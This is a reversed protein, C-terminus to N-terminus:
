SSKESLSQLFVRLLQARLNMFVHFWTTELIVLFIGRIFLLVLLGLVFGILSISLLVGNGFLVFLSYTVPVLLLLVFLVGLIMVGVGILRFWFLLLGMLLSARLSSSTFLYGLRLSQYFSHRDTVYLFYGYHMTASVFLLVFVSLPLAVLLLLISYLPSQSTYLYFVPQYFVFMIAYYLLSRFFLFLFTRWLVSSGLALFSRFSMTTRYLQQFLLLAISGQAVLSLVWLIGLVVVIALLVSSVLGPNSLSYDAIYRYFMSLEPTETFFTEDFTENPINLVVAFLCGLSMLFGLGWFVPRQVILKWSFSLFSFLKM